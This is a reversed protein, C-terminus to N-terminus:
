CSVHWHQRDDDEGCLGPSCLDSADSEIADVIWGASTGSPFVDRRVANQVADIDMHKPACVWGGLLGQKVMFVTDSALDRGAKDLTSLKEMM